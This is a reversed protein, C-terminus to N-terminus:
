AGIQLLHRYWENLIYLHKSGLSQVTNSVTTADALAGLWKGTAGETKTLVEIAAVSGESRPGRRALNCGV